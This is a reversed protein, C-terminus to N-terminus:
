RAAVEPNRVPQSGSEPVIAPAWILSGCGVIRGDADRVQQGPVYLDELSRGEAHAAYVVIISVILGVGQQPAQLNTRDYRVYTIPIGAQEAPSHSCESAVDREDARSLQDKPAPPYVLTTPVDPPADTRPPMILTIAHPTLNIMKM